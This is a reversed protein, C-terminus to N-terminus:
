EMEPSKRRSRRGGSHEEWSGWTESEWKRGQGDLLLESFGPLGYRSPKAKTKAMACAMM